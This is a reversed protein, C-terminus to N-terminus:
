LGKYVVEISTVQKDQPGNVLEWYHFAPLKGAYSVLLSIPQVHIAKPFLSVVCLGLVCLGLVKPQLTTTPKHLSIVCGNGFAM